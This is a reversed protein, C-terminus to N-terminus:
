KRKGLTQVHKKKNDDIRKIAREIGKETKNKKKRKKQVSKKKRSNPAEGRIRSRVGYNFCGKCEELMPSEQVEALAEEIEKCKCYRDGDSTEIFEECDRNLNKCEDIFKIM